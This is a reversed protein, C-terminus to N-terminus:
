SRARQSCSSAPERKAATAAARQARTCRKRQAARRESRRTTSGTTSARTSPLSSRRMRCSACCTCVWATTSAAGAQPARSQIAVRHTSRRSYSRRTPACYAHGQRAHRLRRHRRTPAGPAPAHAVGRASVHDVDRDSARQESGVASDVFVLRCFLCRTDVFSVRAAVGTRPSACRRFALTSPCRSCRRRSRRCSAARRRRHRSRTAPARRRASACWLVVSALTM